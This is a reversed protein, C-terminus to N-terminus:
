ENNVGKRKINTRFNSNQQKKKEKAIADEFDKKAKLQKEREKAFEKEYDMKAERQEKMEESNLETGLPLTKIRALMKQIDKRYYIIFGVTVIPWALHECLGLIFNQWPYM